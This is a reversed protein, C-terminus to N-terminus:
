SFGISFFCYFFFVCFCGCRYMLVFTFIILCHCTFVQFCPVQHPFLSFLVFVCVCVCVCVCVPICVFAVTGVNADGDSAIMVVLLDVGAWKILRNIGSGVRNM